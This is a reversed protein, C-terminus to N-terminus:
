KRREIRFHHSLERAVLDAYIAASAIDQGRLVVAIVRTVDSQTTTFGGTGTASAADGQIATAAVAGAPQNPVAFLARNNRVYDDATQNPRLKGVPHRQMAAWLEDRDTSHRQWPPIDGPEWADIDAEWAALEDAWQSTDPLPMVPLPAVKDLIRDLRNALWNVIM